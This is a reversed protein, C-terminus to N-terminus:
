VSILSPSVTFRVFLIMDTGTPSASTPRTTFGSPSGSSPLPGIRLSLAIRQFPQRRAHNVALRHALRQLGSDFGNVRHNRDPASLALQDDAVALRALGGDDQVRNDVLLAAVQNANVARNPLLAGRDRLHHLNERVIARHIVRMTTAAEAM